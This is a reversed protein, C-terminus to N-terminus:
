VPRELFLRSEKRRLFLNGPLNLRAPGGPTTLELCRSVLAATIDPVDNHKLYAVIIQQQFGLPLTRVSPLHLRDAPDLYHRLTADTELQDAHARLLPPVPDKAFVEKLLPVIEIRLRNRTAIPLANTHDERFELKHSTCYNTIEERRARLLPRHLVLQDRESIPKMGRWGSSGRFLNFLLTEAQDDAHHALVLNPTEFRQSCRQFFDYRANRAATEVSTGSAEALQNVNAKELAFPLHHHAALQRVFRADM